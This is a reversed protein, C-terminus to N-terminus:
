RKTGILCNGCAFESITSDPVVSLFSRWREGGPVIEILERVKMDLLEERIADDPFDRIFKGLVWSITYDPGQFPYTEVREIDFGTDEFLSRLGERTANFYHSPYGHLPQLFPYDIYVKGGPRLCRHMEKVVAWPQRVHELVAFCGIGDLSESEIPYPLDPSVVLDATLSPYVELYLCNKRLRKRLGAGLDLYKGEPNADCEEVFPGFDDNAPESDYADLSYIGHGVRVPFSDAGGLASETVVNRFFDLKERRYDSGAFIAPSFQRRGEYQGFELFHRRPNVKALRVDPNALLYGEDFFNDQTCLEFVEIVNM